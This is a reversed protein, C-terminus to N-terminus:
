IPLMKTTHIDSYCWCFPTKCRIPKHNNFYTKLNGLNGLLSRQSCSSDYISGDLDIHLQEVPSYCDLGEFNTGLPKMLQKAPSSFFEEGTELTIKLTDSYDQHSRLWAWQEESYEVPGENGLGFIKLVVKPSVPIGHYKLVDFSEVCREWNDITMPLNVRFVKKDLVKYLEIFKEIKSYEIHFSLIVNHLFPAIREWYSIPRAGNTQLRVRVETPKLALFDELGEWMTPEGGTFLIDSRPYRNSLNLVTELSPFPSRGSNFDSNCYSCKYQCKNGLMWTIFIRDKKYPIM